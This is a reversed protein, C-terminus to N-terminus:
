NLLKSISEDLKEKDASDCFLKLIPVIENILEGMNWSKNIDDVGAIRETTLHGMEKHARNRAQELTQSIPPRKSQWIKPNPFFDKAYIDTPRLSNTSYLFTILNRLHVVFSEVIMNILVQESVNKIKSVELLMWIEYFLHEKSYEILEKDTLKM